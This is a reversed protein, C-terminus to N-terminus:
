KIASFNTLKNKEGEQALVFLDMYETITKFKICLKFIINNHCWLTLNCCVCKNVFGTDSKKKRQEYIIM